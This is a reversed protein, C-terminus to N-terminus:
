LPKMLFDVWMRKHFMRIRIVNKIETPTPKDRKLRTSYPIASGM